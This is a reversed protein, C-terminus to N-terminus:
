KSKRSLKLGVTNVAAFGVLLALIIALSQSGAGNGTNPLGPAEASAGLVEGLPSSGGGGSIGSRRSGGTSSNSSGSEVPDGGGIGGGGGGGCNTVCPTDTNPSNAPEFDYTTTHTNSGTKIAIVVNDVNGTFGDNYPEGVRFGFWSDTTRTMVNPYDALIQNWTKPTTGPIANPAPWTAGSYLWLGNGGDIADWSQWTDALVSGNASPLYVLRKQWTDLGNFSVNFNLYASRNTEPSQSYTSFRLTKIDSLKVGSFQYTAINKRETGSVSMEASGTSLPNGTPTPGTVFSGLTNDITDTEDNYFFWKTPALIVAALDPALDAATVTTTSYTMTEGGGGDGGRPCTDNWVIVVKDSVLNTFSPATSTPTGVVAQGYTDGYTYGALAYDKQDECSTGVLSGSLVESTSYDAGATMNSTVAEYANPSNFGASNLTYSGNGAGGLNVANWASVMPFANNFANQATALIGDVFKLITVKVTSPNEPVETPVNWAVCYYNEGSHLNDVRDYNDYNLVDSNCYVEASVNNANSQNASDFTFPIYGSKFVERFWVYGGDNVVPVEISVTGDLATLGSTNWAGGAPGVFAMPKDPTGEPAWEFQWNPELRCSPHAPHFENGEVGNIWVSATTSSINSGGASGWNPLDAENTCVIKTAIINATNSPCANNWVIVHQNHAIGNIVSSYNEAGHNNIADQTTEGWTYGQLYFKGPACENFAVTANNEGSVEESWGITSGQDKLGTSGTFATGSNLNIVQDKNDGLGWNLKFNADTDTAPEGDIYKHFTVSFQPVDSPGGEGCDSNWSLKFLVGAPNDAPNPSQGEDELNTATIEITNSGSILFSGVNYSDQTGLQFNNEDFVVPVINGNVKVSYHNDVAIDLTGSTPTGTITFTKTFVKSLNGDNTPSAVPNTAWIWTAGPISATWGPHVFSLAVAPLSDTTNTVTTDSVVEGSTPVCENSGQSCNNINLEVVIDQYDTDSSTPVNNLPLDEFAMVYGKSNNPNVYVVAHDENAVNVSKQTGYKTANSPTTDIAFGISTHGTTNIITPAIVAGEALVPAVGGHAANRFIPQYTGMDGDFYYGFEQGNSSISRIFKGSVTVSDTGLPISWSQIGTDQTNAVITNVGYEANLVQQLSIEGGWSLGFSTIKDGNAVSMPIICSGEEQPPAISDKTNTVTCTKHQGIAISGSCSESYSATYGSPGGTETVAYSGPTVAIDVGTESGSVSSPSSNTISLNFQGATAIGIENNVVHKIVTLTGTEEAHPANEACWADQGESPGNYLFDGHGLHGDLSPGAPTDHYQWGTETKHCINIKEVAEAQATRLAFVGPGIAQFVILFALTFSTITKIRKSAGRLLFYKM